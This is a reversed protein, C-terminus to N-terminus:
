NLTVEFTNFEVVIIHDSFLVFKILAFIFFFLINM